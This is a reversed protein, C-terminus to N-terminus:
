AAAGFAYGVAMSPAPASGRSESVVRLGAPANEFSVRIDMQGSGSGGADFSSPQYGTRGNRLNLRRQEQAEPGYGSGQERRTLIEGLRTMADITANIVDIAMRFPSLIGNWVGSFFAALTNWVARVPAWLAEGLGAVFGVIERVMGGIQAPLTVAMEQVIPWINAKAWAFGEVATEWVRRLVPGVTEWNEIILYAAAAIAAGTVLFPAMAVVVGALAAILSGSMVAGLVTLATQLGGAWEVAQGLADTFVQWGAAVRDWPISQIAAALATVAGSINGALWEKNANVWRIMQEVLPAVVPLLQAGIATQVGAVAAGLDNWAASFRALGTIAEPNPTAFGRDTRQANNQQMDALAAALAPNGVTAMAMRQRLGANQNRRFAEALEPMVDAGTRVQGAGDRLSIGLRRFLGAALDDRGAAAEAVVRNLNSMGQAAAEASVNSQRASYAFQDFRERQADSGVGLQRWSASLAAARDAAMTLTTVLGALSAVSGIAALPGLLGGVSGALGGVAGSAAAASAALGGFLTGNSLPASSTLIRTASSQIGATVASVRGALALLPASVRDVLSVTARFQADAM